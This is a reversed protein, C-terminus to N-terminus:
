KMDFRFAVKGDIVDVSVANTCDKIQNMNNKLWDLIQVVDIKQQNAVESAYTTFTNCSCFFLIIPTIILFLVKKFFKLM